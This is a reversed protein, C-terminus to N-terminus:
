SKEKPSAPSPAPARPADSPAPSSAVLGTRTPPRFRGTEPTAAEMDEVDDDDDDPDADQLGQLANLATVLKRCARDKKALKKKLEANEQRLKAIVRDKMHDDSERSQTPRAAEEEKAEKLLQQITAEKRKVMNVLEKNKEMLMEFDEQTPGEREPIKETAISKAETRPAPKARTPEPMQEEEAQLAGKLFNLGNKWCACDADTAFVM